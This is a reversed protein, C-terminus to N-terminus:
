AHAGPATPCDRCNLLLLLRPTQPSLTKTDTSRRRDAEYFFHSYRQGEPAKPFHLTFLADVLGLAVCAAVWWFM